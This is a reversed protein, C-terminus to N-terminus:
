LEGDFIKHNKVRMLAARMCPLSRQKEASSSHTTTRLLRIYTNCHFVFNSPNHTSQDCRLRRPTYINRRQRVKVRAGTTPSIAEGMACLSETKCSIFELRMYKFGGFLASDLKVQSCLARKKWVRAYV